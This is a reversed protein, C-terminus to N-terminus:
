GIPLVGRRRGHPRRVQVSGTRSCSALFRLIDSLTFDDLSGKLM